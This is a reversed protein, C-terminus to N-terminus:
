DLFELIGSTIARAIAARRDIAIEWDGANSGFFPEMIVAPCHTGKLFEAGRAGGTKPKIGRAKIQPVALCMEAHLCEALRKGNKSTSWYLWEHGNAAPDDDANFHFEVALTAADLRLVSALWRQATGYWGGEYESYVRSNVRAKSLLAKVMEVLDRNYTWESVGGVSVAGGEPHGNIRRSHGICLAVLPANM